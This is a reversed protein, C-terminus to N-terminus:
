NVEVPVVLERGGKRVSYDARTKRQPAEQYALVGKKKIETTM